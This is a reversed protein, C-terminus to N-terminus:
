PVPFGLIKALPLALSVCDAVLSLAKKTKGEVANLWRRWKSVAEIQGNKDKNEASEKLELLLGAAQYALSKTIDDPPNKTLTDVLRAYLYRLQM